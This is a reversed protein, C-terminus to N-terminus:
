LLKYNFASAEEHYQRSKNHDPLNLSDESRANRSGYFNRLIKCKNIERKRM